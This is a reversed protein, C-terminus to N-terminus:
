PKVVKRTTIKLAEIYFKVSSDVNGPDPMFDFSLTSPPLPIPSSVFTSFTDKPSIAFVATEDSSIILQPFVSAKIKRLRIEIVSTGSDNWSYWASGNVEDSTRWLELYGDDYEVGGLDDKFGLEHMEIEQVVEEFVPPEPEPEPAPKERCPGILACSSFISLLASLFIANMKM